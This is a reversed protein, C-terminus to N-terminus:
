YTAQSITRAITRAVEPNEWYSGHANGGNILALFTSKVPKALLELLGSGSTLIDAIDIYQEGRDVLKPIVEELPLGIPDGPHIFNRWPLKSGDQCVNKLLQELRPSIDHSSGANTRGVMTILSFLAIPSGMTHISALRIGDPSNPPVGFINRRIKEISKHGSIEPNDWRSAFLMDFLVVTGWSHTVLHLRDKPQYGQLCEFAQEQLQMVAESGVHRSIYLAADGIFQMLQQSRFDKFWFNKWAPAKNIWPRFEELVEDSVNAWYLPVKQLKCSPLEAQILNFLRDAYRYSKQRENAASERVSVGHVFLIYDTPQSPM